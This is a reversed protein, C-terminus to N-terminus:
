TLHMHCLEIYCIFCKVGHVISLSPNGGGKCGVREKSFFETLARKTGPVSYLYNLVDVRGILLKCPLSSFLSYFCPGGCQDIIDM